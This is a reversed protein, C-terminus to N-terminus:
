VGSSVKTWTDRRVLFLQIEGLRLALIGEFAARPGSEHYATVLGLRRAIRVFDDKGEYVLVADTKGLEDLSDIRQSLAIRSRLWHRYEEVTCLPIEGGYSQERWRLPEIFRDFFISSGTGARGFNRIRNLEPRLFCRGRRVEPRRLWEDWLTEPWDPELTQWMKRSIMWGQGPFCDTRHVTRPCSAYQAHDNWASVALLDPDSELLPMFREMYPFFDGGVEIDDELVIVRKLAPSEEFVRRLSAGFHQAIRYYPALGRRWASGPMAVKDHFRYHGVQPSLSNVMSETTREEGDQSVVLRLPQDVPWHRHLARLARRLYWPRLATFLIVATEAEPEPQPFRFGLVSERWQGNALASRHGLLASWVSQAVFGAESKWCRGLWLRNWAQWVSYFVTRKFLRPGQALLQETARDYLESCFRVRGALFGGENQAAATLPEARM